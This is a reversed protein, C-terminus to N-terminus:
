RHRRCHDDDDDDNAWLFCQVPCTLCDLCLTAPTLLIRLGLLEWSWETEEDYAFATDDDGTVPDTDDEPQFGWLGLTFCSCLLTSLALSRVLRLPKM